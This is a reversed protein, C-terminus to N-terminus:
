DNYLKFLLKASKLLKSRILQTYRLNVMKINLLVTVSTM